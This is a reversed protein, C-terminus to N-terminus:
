DQIGFLHTDQTCTTTLVLTRTSIFLRAEEVDLGHRGFGRAGELLYVFGPAHRHRINETLFNPVTLYGSPWDCFSEGKAVRVRKKTFWFSCSWLEVGNKSEKASLAYVAPRELQASQVQGAIDGLALAGKEMSPLFKAPALSKVM